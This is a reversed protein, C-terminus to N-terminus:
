PQLGLYAHYQLLLFDLMVSAHFPSDSKPATHMVMLEGNHTHVIEIDNDVRGICIITNLPLKM